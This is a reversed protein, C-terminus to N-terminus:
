RSRISSPHGNERRDISERSPGTESGAKHNGPLALITSTGGVFQDHGAFRDPSARGEPQMPSNRDQTENSRAEHDTSVASAMRTMVFVVKHVLAPRAPTRASSLCWGHGGPRNLREYGSLSHTENRRPSVSGVVHEISSGNDPAREASQLNALPDAKVHSGIGTFCPVSPCSMDAGIDPCHFLSRGAKRDHCSWM